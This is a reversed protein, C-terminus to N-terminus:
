KVGYKKRAEVAFKDFDIGEGRAYQEEARNIAAITADDLELEEEEMMRTLAVELVEEMSRFHGAQVQEDVFKQIEPKLAISVTM